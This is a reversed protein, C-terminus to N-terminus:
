ILDLLHAIMETGRHFNDIVLMENPAHIRGEPVDIGLLLCTAGLKASLSAVIPISAGDRIPYVEGDFARGMAEFSARVAPDDIPALFPRGGHGRSVAVRVEPPAIRRVHRELLDLIRDPDQNPVLRMSVKATARAPVITKSGDGGFGGILGNVEFSPRAWIREITSFGAEGYPSEAGLDRCFAREDFPLAAFAEREDPRLELVDDYFGEIRIRGDRDKLDSLIRALFEAPNAVAGGYNGSHLDSAPGEVLIEATAIGRLGYCVSPCGSAFFPSDSIVAIDAALLDRHSDLLQELAESGEEEEGEIAFVVNVPLTGHVDLWADVANIHMMVQGKDDATGRGFVKGDRVEPEFPPSTWEDLPDAPMVDYHGYFLVTPLDDAIQKRAWVVPNGDGVELTRVEDMGARGLREELWRAAATIAEPHPRGPSVSPIRVLEMMELLAKERNARLTDIVQDM